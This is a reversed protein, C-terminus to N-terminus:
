RVRVWAENCGSAAPSIDCIGHHAPPNFVRVCCLSAM